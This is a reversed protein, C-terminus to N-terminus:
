LHIIISVDPLPFKLKYLDVDTLPIAIRNPLVVFSAIVDDIAGRLIDSLFLFFTLLHFGYDNVVLICTARDTFCSSATM